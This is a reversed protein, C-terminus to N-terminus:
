ISESPVPVPHVDHQFLMNTISMHADELELELELLEELKLLEDDEHDDMDEDEDGFEPPTPRHYSGPREQYIPV